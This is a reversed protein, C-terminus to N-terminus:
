FQLGLSVQFTQPAGISFNPASGNRVTTVLPDPNVDAITVANNTSSINALYGRDFLNIANLQIYAGNGDDAFDYRVSADVTFYAPAYDDNVDTAWRKGVYKSQLGLTINDFSYEIRSGFMWEPTEVLKKGATPLLTVTSGVLGLPLNEKLESDTYSVTGYLTLGEVYEPQYAIALDVGWLDVKGVNRDVNVGLDQDYATVIRNDYKTMYVAASATVESGYFRYGLDFTDTKEPDVGTLEIEFTTPNRVPTYLNDTRPASLGQAFSAYVVHGEAFEYSIGINPLVADYKKTASYPAIFQTGAAYTSGNSQVAGAFTVNGNALTALPTESTCYVNSTGNASYCYQNLEREFFPLRVGLAVKLRDDYFSGNYSLAFQNLRAISFRDRTRLVEGNFGVVKTADRGGFVSLPDGNGDLFTYEGTQRHRGYDLTYAARLSSTENIDWILSGTVGYRYTNTTNPTYLRVSDMTDGDGNLDVGASSYATGAANRGRLRADAESFVNTGGGNALTYQFSPDITLKINDALTFSSQARINGTNSPNIRLGYFNTCSGPNLINESGGAAVATSGDLDATGTTPADRTCSGFNDYDMGYTAIQTKTLNRYFANRNENYHGAIAIFDGNEGIDQYIRTNYQKKELEGPGKFKQYRQYSGTLFATTGWPGIEGSDISGFVRGFNYSGAAVTGRVTFESDPKRTGVNITGGTASATPSDVDTTGVNVTARSIIEPDLQQNTYIAYNGTDNLPMGDTTLSVRNGDFGRMRVNGGSSGYPDSNTFNFGPVLNLSQIVSQGVTQTKLYSQDVTTRTKPVTEKKILGGKGNKQGKVIVTEEVTETGTSQAFAPIIATLALVSLSAGGLLMNLKM